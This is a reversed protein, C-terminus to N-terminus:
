NYYYAYDDDDGGSGNYDEDDGFGSALGPLEGSGSEEDVRDGDGGGGPVVPDGGGGEPCQPLGRCNRPKFEEGQCFAGGNQPAPNNCRRNKQQFSIVGCTHSCPGWEGWPGWGGDVPCGDNNICKETDIINGSCYRGKYRPAPNNCQHSRQHYGEEGTCPTASCRGWESWESWGGHIPCRQSARCTKVEKGEGICDDGGHAPAPDTCTRRRNRKGRDCTASCRTWPSWSSWQGHVPCPQLDCIQIQQNAGPCVNGGHLPRPSDCKRIRRKTGFDGCTESCPTYESWM